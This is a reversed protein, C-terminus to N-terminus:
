NARSCAMFADELSFSHIGITVEEAVSDPEERATPDADLGSVDKFGSLEVGVIVEVSSGIEAEQSRFSKTTEPDDLEGTTADAESALASASWLDPVGFARAVDSITVSITPVAVLATM